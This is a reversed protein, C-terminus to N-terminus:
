IAEEQDGLYAEKVQENERIEAPTGTVLVRGYILVSIRDALSFVADMDHEVLVIPYQKKIEKLLTVMEVSEAQSMGAMPEDLLLLKPKTALTMALELQRYEGHALSSVLSSERSRLGCLDLFHHAEKLLSEDELVSKLFSFSNPETAQAALIVNELVTMERFVQSIQYSRGIGARARQYVTLRTIDNGAFHISGEDPTLEGSLLSLFTTKGAGNPGIVAHLENPLLEFNVHDTALLGGFRKVLGTIKLLPQSNSM